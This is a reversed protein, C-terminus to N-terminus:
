TNAQQQKQKQQVQQVQGLVSKLQGALQPTQAITAVDKMLPELTKMDQGGVPNGQSASDLAKAINTTPATSGTAAKLTNTAQAVAQAQKPDTQQTTQGATNQPPNNAGFEKIQKKPKELEAKREQPTPVTLEGKAFKEQRERNKFWTDLVKHARSEDIGLDKAQKMLIDKRRTMTAALEPDPNPVQTRLQGLDKMMQKAHEPNKPTTVSNENTQAKDVVRTITRIGIHEPHPTKPDKMIKARYELAQELTDFEDGFEHNPEMNPGRGILKYTSVKPLKAWEKEAETDIKEQRQRDYADDADDYPEEYEEPGSEWGEDLDVGFYDLSTAFQEIHGMKKIYEIADSAVAHGAGENQNIFRTLLKALKNDTNADENLGKEYEARIAPLYDSWSDRARMKGLEYAFYLFAENGM